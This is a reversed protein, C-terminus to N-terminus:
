RDGAQLSELIRNDVELLRYADNDLSQSFSMCQVVPKLDSRDLKAFERVTEVDELSRCINDFSAAFLLLLNGM